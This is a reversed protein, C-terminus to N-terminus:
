LAKSYLSRNRPPGLSIALNCQVHASGLGRKPTQSHTSNNLVTHAFTERTNLHRPVRFGRSWFWNTTSAATNVCTMAILYRLVNESWRLKNFHSFTFWLQRGKNKLNTWYGCSLPRYTTPQYRFFLPPLCICITQTMQESKRTPVNKHRNVSSLYTKLFHLCYKSALCRTNHLRIGSPTWWAHRSAAAAVCSGMEAKKPIHHLAVWQVAKSTM